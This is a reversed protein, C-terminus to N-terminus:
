NDNSPHRVLRDIAEVEEIEKDGGVGLENFKRATVLVRGEFSGVAKNYAEITSDLGRKIDSFHKVLVGLRQHLDKGLDSINQASKAMLEQRWGYAVSRLLAILTTPTALIVQQEVGWEILSPDHELAASFFTEGPIFLVVFEPTPTFQDWYSKLSLASIHNRIQRAHDRLKSIRVTEDQAELAELYSQLPTKADVVVQKGNPLRVILDPRLRREDNVATEQQVFDCYAVMGAMEVVRQLQIEGWRGRVNPMRLAKVLNGTEMHLAAQATSLSKVQETLSTYASTRLREIEQIKHDVKDLSEKLPKVLEHIAQQRLQLDSKAGEQLRELKATALEAFSQANHKLADISLLQFTDSMQKQMNQLMGIKEETNKREHHLTTELQVCRGRLIQLEEEKLNLTQQFEKSHDKNARL